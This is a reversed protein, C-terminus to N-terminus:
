RERVDRYKLSEGARGMQFVMDQLDRPIMGTIIAVKVNDSFEENFEVRLKGVKIEWEEVARELLRVDKVPMPNIVAGLFQLIWSPTVPQIAPEAYMAGRFWM